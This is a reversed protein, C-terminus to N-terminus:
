AAAPQFILTFSGPIVVDSCAVGPPCVPTQEPQETLTVTGSGSLKAFAGTGGTITYQFSSPPPSFGPQLPGVLLLTVSGTPSTLTLTAEARGQFIFGPTNLKGSLYVSGLPTVTGTGALEQEGGTDPLLPVSDWTGTVQGTL